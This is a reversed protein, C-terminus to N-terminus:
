GNLSDLRDRQAYADYNIAPQGGGTGDPVGVGAAGEGGRSDGSGEAVYQGGGLDTIDLPHRAEGPVFGTTLGDVIFHALRDAHEDGPQFNFTLTIEM